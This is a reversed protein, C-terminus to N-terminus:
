TSSRMKKREVVGLDEKSSKKSNKRRPHKMDEIRKDVVDEPIGSMLLDKRLNSEKREGFNKQQLRLEAERKAVLVKTVYRTM